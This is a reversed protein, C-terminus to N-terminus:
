PESPELEMRPLKSVMLWVPLIVLCLIPLVSIDGVVTVALFLSMWGDRAVVLVFGLVGASIALSLPIDPVLSHAVLGVSVGIFAAPFIRGGRFGSTAAVLLAAVKVLTILVLQGTSMGDALATLQKMEEAGKFLTLPGGIAGLAGLLVGGLTLYLVPHRLLQFGRHLLPFLFLVAIGLITAAVAVGAGSVLDIAEPVGLPPIGVSFSPEGVLAMVIAGSGAAVVPLFLRDWLAGKAASMGVLGTFILAAAVPTGFLAGITGAVSLMVSQEIPVNPLVRTMLAVVIATNIAIIPNEPGLSVGGALGILVVAFLGPLVRLKLPPSVLGTTAPDPGAHGPVLWVIVGVLLGVITLTGFIWWGSDPDVGLADPIATWIIDQLGNSLETLAILMVATLAGILISPISLLLTTRIPPAGEAAAEAM